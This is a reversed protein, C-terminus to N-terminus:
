QRYEIHQHPDSRCFECIGSFEAGPCTCRINKTRVFHHDETYPTGIEAPDIKEWPGIGNVWVEDSEILPSGHEKLFHEVGPDPQIERKIEDILHAAEEETLPRRLISKALTKGTVRDWIAEFSPCKPEPPIGILEDIQRMLAPRSAELAALDDQRVKASYDGADCAPCGDHHLHLPDHHPCIIQSCVSCEGNEKDCHNVLLNVQNRLDDIVVGSGRRCIASATKEAELTKIKEQLDTVEDPSLAKRWRGGKLLFQSQQDPPYIRYARWENQQEHWRWWWGPSDPIEQEANM